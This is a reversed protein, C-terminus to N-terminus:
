PLTLVYAGRGHTAAYLVHGSQSLTLGFVAVNPLGTGARVWSHSGSPLRLVGFDTAAYLDGTARDRAIGTVPQDGIDYSRDTFTATHAKPDFRAELVHQPTGPTYAGYGSYSIWAHNPNSPDVAIGSVFRGPTSPRDIRYFHVNAPNASNRRHQGLATRDPDSGV